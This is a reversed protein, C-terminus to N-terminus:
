LVIERRGLYSIELRRSDETATCGLKHPVQDNECRPEILTICGHWVEFLFLVVVFCSTVNLLHLCLTHNSKSPTYKCDTNPAYILFFIATDYRFNYRKVTFFQLKNCLGTITIHDIQHKVTM